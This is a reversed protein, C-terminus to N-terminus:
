YYTFDYVELIEITYPPIKNDYIMGEFLNSLLLLCGELEITNELEITSLNTDISQHIIETNDMTKYLPNITAIVVYVKLNHNIFVFHNTDKNDGVGGGHVPIQRPFENYLYSPHIPRPM